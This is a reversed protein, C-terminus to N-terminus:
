VSVKMGPFRLPVGQLNAGQMTLDEILMNKIKQNGGAADTLIDDTFIAGRASDKGTLVDLLKAVEESVYPNDSLRDIFTQLEQPRKYEQSPKDQILYHKDITQMVKTLLENDNNTLRRLDDIYFVNDTPKKGANSPDLSFTLANYLRKAEPDESEMLEGWLAGFKTKLSSVEKTAKQMETKLDPYSNFYSPDHSAEDYLSRVLEYYANDDNIIKQIDSLKLQEGPPQLKIGELASLKGKYNKGLLSTLVNETEPDRILDYIKRVIRGYLDGSVSPNSQQALKRLYFDMGSILEASTKSM